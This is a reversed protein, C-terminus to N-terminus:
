PDATRSAWLFGPERYGKARLRELIPRAEDRRDTALLALALPALLEPDRSHKAVPEISELANRWADAAAAPDAPELAAGLLTYSRSLRSAIVPDEPSDARLEELLRVSGQASARAPASRGAVLFAEAQARLVVALEKQARVSRYGEALLTELESRATSLLELGAEPEGSGALANGLLGRAVAHYRRWRVNEPDLRSLEQRLRVQSRFSDVAESPRGLMWLVTGTYAMATAQRERLRTDDPSATLLETLLALDTRFEELASRLEGLQLEIAGIRNHKTAVALTLESDDPFEAALALLLAQGQHHLRLAEDLEGRRIALQGLNHLGSATERRWHKHDPQERVLDEYTDLHLQYAAEAGEFDGQRELAFGLWFRSDAYSARWDQRQPDRRTLQQALEAAGLFHSQAEGLRGQQLRVDGLQRLAEARNALDEDSLRRADFSEYYSLVQDIAGDM